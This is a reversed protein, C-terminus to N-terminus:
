LGFVLLASGWKLIALCWKVFAVWTQIKITDGPKVVIALSLTGAVHIKNGTVSHAVRKFVKGLAVNVVQKM